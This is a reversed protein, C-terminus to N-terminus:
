TWDGAVVLRNSAQRALHRLIESLFRWANGIEVEFSAMNYVSRIRCTFTSLRKRWLWRWCHWRLSTYCWVRAVGGGGGNVTGILVSHHKSQSTYLRVDSCQGRRQLHSVSLQGCHLLALQGHRVVHLTGAGWLAARFYTHTHLTGRATNRRLPPSRAVVRARWSSTYARWFGLM